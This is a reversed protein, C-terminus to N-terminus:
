MNNCTYNRILHMEKVDQQSMNQNERNKKTETQWILKRQLIGPFEILDLFTHVHTQFQM